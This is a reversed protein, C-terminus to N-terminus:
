GAEICSEGAQASGVRIGPRVRVPSTPGSTFKPHGPESCAAFEAHTDAHRRRSALTRSGCAGARRARWAEVQDPSLM